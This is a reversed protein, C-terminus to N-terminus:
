SKQGKKALLSSIIKKDIRYHLVLLQLDRELKDDLEKILKQLEEKDKQAYRDEKKLLGYFQPVFNTDKSAVIETTSVKTTSYKHDDKCVVMTGGGEEETTSANSNKKNRVVTTGCKEEEDSSGEESSDSKNGREVEQDLGLAAERSGAKAIVELSEEYMKEFLQRTDKNRAQEIFPHRLLQSASPRDKPNKTLATNVFDNFNQSWKSPSTLTPSPRTPIMFIVRMPHINYYPPKGEAMEICTIGLSWIDAKRDYKEQIVEPAMWFPTGIVTHHKTFDKVDGSVGFDGLKSVGESNLLINGAKIDRHIRKQNHLFKLGKLTDRMVVAIQDENLTKKTMEMLDSISGCACYEMGIWLTLGTPIRKMLFSRKYNVIYENQLSSMHEIETLIDELDGEAAVNVEKLAVVEGTERDQAKWVTGFAGQGLKELLEYVQTPEIDLSIKLTEKIQVDGLKLM